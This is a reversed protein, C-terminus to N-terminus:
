ERNYSLKITKEIVLKEVESEMELPEIDISNWIDKVMQLQEICYLKYMASEYMLEAMLDRDVEITAM